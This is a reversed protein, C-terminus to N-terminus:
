FRRNQLAADGRISLTGMDFNSNIYKRIEFPTMNKYDINNIALYEGVMLSLNEANIGYDKEAEIFRDLTWGAKKLTPTIMEFGTCCRGLLL